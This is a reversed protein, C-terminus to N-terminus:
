AGERPFSASVGRVTLAMGRLARLGAEGRTGTLDQLLDSLEEARAPTLAGCREGFSLLSAQEDLSLAVPLPVPDVEIPPLTRRRLSGEYVVVTDAVLDGLRQFHRTSLVAILGVTYGFPLGDVVRLLNRLLSPGWSVPRGDCMLVRLGLTRKGVTRGSWLVECLVPYFWHALFLLIIWIGMGVPGFIGCVIGVAILGAWLIVQDLALALARAVPGAPVLHLEVGEPTEVTRVTDVPEM